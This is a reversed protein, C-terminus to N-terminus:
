AATEDSESIDAKGWTLVHAPLLVYTSDWSTEDGAVEWWGSEYHHMIQGNFDKVVTGVPLAKVQDLDTLRSQQQLTVFATRADAGSWDMQRQVADIIHQPPLQINTLESSM